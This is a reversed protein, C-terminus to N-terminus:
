LFFPKFSVKLKTQIFRARAMATFLAQAADIKNKEDTSDPTALLGSSLERSIVNGMCWELVKDDAPYHFRGDAVAAELEQMGPTLHKSNQPIEAITLGLNDEIKQCMEPAFMRDIAVESVKYTVKDTAIDEYLFNFDMSSGPTKVLKGEAAWRQFHQNAPDNIGAEHFYCTVFAYYAPKSDIVDRFVLARASFDHLLALDVGIVCPLHKVKDITLAAEACQRFADMNAWSSSATMWHGLYKCRFINQKSANRIAEQQKRLLYDEKVSVGLNPNASVLAERSRWDLDPDATYIVGFLQENPITGTLMQEVELQKAHCPGSLTEGATSIILSLPQDRGVMGMTMSDYVSSDPWEHAEDGIFCSAMAGDRAKGIIPLFRSRTSLQVISKANVEIGFKKCLEPRATLMAHAPRYVEWAQKESAASCYVEAGKEKDFFALYIAIAAALPSKGNKRSVMLVAELFRRWQTKKDVWGFISCIIWVQFDELLFPQDQKNGKEHPLLEIFACARHAKDEAYTWRWDARELDDLHRQCALKTYKSAIQEGSIVRHCYALARESYTPGPM